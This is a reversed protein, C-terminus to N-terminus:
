EDKIGLMALPDVLRNQHRLEFHIGPEPGCTSVSVQGLVAGAEVKQGSVVHVTSLHGYLSQWEQGHDILIVRGLVPDAKIDQVVGPACALVATGAPATLDVGPHYRWETYRKEWASRRVVEGRVPPTLKLSLFEKVEEKRAPVAAPPIQKRLEALEKQLTLVKETLLTVPEIEAEPVTLPVSQKQFWPQFAIVWGVAVLCLFSVVQVLLRRKRYFQLGGHIVQGCFKKVGAGGQEWIKELKMKGITFLSM